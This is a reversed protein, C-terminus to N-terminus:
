GRQNRYVGPTLLTYKKFMRSFYPANKFNTEDIIRSIPLDTTLLLFQSKEIRKRIIFECPSVGFISKFIRAFHDKSLCSIQALQEIKIDNQLNEQIFVLIEQINYKLGSALDIRPEDSIFGSFLQQIIAESELKQGASHYVPKKDMWPKTQYVQPDHHPLELGPNIELLRNFLLKSLESARIKNRFSIFNYITMGNTMLARFHIYFHSLGKNFLYNCHVFSPILYLYGTELEIAQNGIVIHGSGETILYMRSYPSVIDAYESQQSFRLYALNKLEFHVSSGGENLIM